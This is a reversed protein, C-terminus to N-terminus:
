ADLLRRGAAVDAGRPWSKVSPSTSKRAPVRSPARALQARRRWSGHRAEREGCASPRSGQWRRRPPAARCRAQGRGSRRRPGQRAQREPRPALRRPWADRCRWPRCRLAQDREGAGAAGGVDQDGDAAGRNALAVEDARRKAGLAHLEIEPLDGHPRSLGQEKAAEAGAPAQAELCGPTPAPKHARTGPASAAGGARGALRHGRVPRPRRKACASSALPGALM